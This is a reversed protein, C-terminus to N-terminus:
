HMLDGQDPPATQTAVPPATQTAAPSYVRDIIENWQTRITMCHNM